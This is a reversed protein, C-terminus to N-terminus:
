NKCHKTFTASKLVRVSIMSLKSQFAFFCAEFDSPFHVLFQDFFTKKSLESDSRTESEIEPANQCWKPLDQPGNAEMEATRSGGSASGPPRSPRRPAEQPAEPGGFRLKSRNQVLKSRDQLWKPAMKSAWSRM